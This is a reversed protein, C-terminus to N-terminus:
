KKQKNPNQSNVDDYGPAEVFAKITIVTQSPETNATLTVTKTQAGHKGESNFTVEIEGTQGPQIPDTPYKPVTCGCSGKANTIVLPENGSNTLVFNHSVKEGSQITGFDHVPEAFHITTKPIDATESTDGPAPGNANGEIPHQGPHNGQSGKKFQTYGFFALGTILVGLIGVKLGNSM